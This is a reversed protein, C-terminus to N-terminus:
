ATHSELPDVLRLMGYTSLQGEALRNSHAKVSDLDAERLDANKLDCDFLVTLSFDARYLTAGSMNVRYLLAGTFNVDPLFADRFTAEEVVARKFSAENAVCRAFNAGRLDAGDFIGRSLICGTLDSGRFSAASFDLNQFNYERLDLGELRFRIPRRANFRIREPLSGLLELAVQVNPRGDGAGNEPATAGSTASPVRTRIFSEIAPVVVLANEASTTSFYKLEALASIQTTTDPNGLAELAEAINSRHIEILASKSMIAKLLQEEREGQRGDDKRRVTWLSLTGALGVLTALGSIFVGAALAAQVGSLNAVVVLLAILV